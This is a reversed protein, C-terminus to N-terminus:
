WLTFDVFFFNLFNHLLEWWPQDPFFFKIELVELVGTEDNQSFADFFFFLLLLLIFYFIFLPLFLM